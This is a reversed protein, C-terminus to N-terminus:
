VVSKRDIVLDLDQVQQLHTGEACILANVHDGLKANEWMAYGEHIYTDGFDNSFKLDVYSRPTGPSNQIAAIPGQGLLGLDEDDGSGIWQIYFMKGDIVPKASSHVWIKSGVESIPFSGNGILWKWGEPSSLDKIGNNVIVEGCGILDFLESSEKYVSQMSSSVDLEEGVQLDKGAFSLIRPTNNKLKIIQNAM